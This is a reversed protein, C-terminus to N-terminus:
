RLRSAKLFQKLERPGLLQEYMKTAKPHSPQIALAREIAKRQRETNNKRRWFESLELWGEVYKPNVELAKKICAQARRHWLPNRLMLRALKLLEEPRAELSCAQELLQIALYIEGDHIMEDARKINAEVMEQRLGGDQGDGGRSLNEHREESAMEKLIRDYRRRHPPDSLLEFAARVRELIAELTSEMDLLHPELAREPRIKAALKEWQRNIDRFPADKGIGLVQYHNMQALSRALEQFYRREQLAAGDLKEEDVLCHERRPAGKRGKSTSTAENQSGIWLLGCRSLSYLIELTEKEPMPILHLLDQIMRTTGVRSLVFAESPTLDLGNTLSIVDGELHILQSRDGIRQDKEANDPFNRASELILRSTSLSGLTDPQKLDIKESFTAIIDPDSSCRRIITLGLVELAERLQERSLVEHEVLLYGLPDVPGTQRQKRLAQTKQKESIINRAVLWSGIKESELSSAAARIEGTVFFIRRSVSRGTVHVIGSAKEQVLMSLLEPLPQHKRLKSDLRSSM